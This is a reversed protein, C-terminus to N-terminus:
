FKDENIFDEVWQIFNLNRNIKEERNTKDEDNLKNSLELASNLHIIGNRLLHMNDKILAKTEELYKSKEEGYKMKELQSMRNDYDTRKRFEQISNYGINNLQWAAIEPRNLEKTYKVALLLESTMIDINGKEFAAEANAKAMRYDDWLNRKGPVTKKMDEEIMRDPKDDTKTKEEVVPEDKNEINSEANDVAINEKEVPKSLEDKKQEQGCGYYIFSVLLLSIFLKM